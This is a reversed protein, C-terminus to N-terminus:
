RHTIKPIIRFKPFWQCVYEIGLTQPPLQDHPPLSHKSILIIFNLHVSIPDHQDKRFSPLDKGAPNRLFPLGGHMTEPLLVLLLGGYIYYIIILQM